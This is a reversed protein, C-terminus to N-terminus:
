PPKGTGLMNHSTHACRTGLDFCGLAATEWNLHKCIIGVGIWVWATLYWIEARLWKM